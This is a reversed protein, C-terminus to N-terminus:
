YKVGVIQLTVKAENGDMKYGRAYVTLSKDLENKSVGIYSYFGAKEGIIQTINDGQPFYIIHAYVNGSSTGDSVFVECRIEDYRNYIEEPVYWTKAFMVETVKVERKIFERFGMRKM